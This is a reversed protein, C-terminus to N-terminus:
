TTTKGEIRDAEVIADLILRRGCKLSSAPLLKNKKFITGCPQCVRRQGREGNIIVGRATILKLCAACPKM